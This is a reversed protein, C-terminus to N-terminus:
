AAAARASLGPISQAPAGVIQQAVSLAAMATNNAPTEDVPVAGSVAVAASAFVDGALAASGAITVSTSAGGALPGLTCALQSGSGAASVTCAPTSPADFRFPVDGGFTAALTFSPVEVTSSRNTVTFTWTASTGITVPNPAASATLALDARGVRLVTLSLQGSVAPPSGDTVTFAVTVPPGAGTGLQPVGSLLGATSLTLGAPLAGAAAFTISQPPTDADTVFQALNLSLPAGETATQPPIPAIVPQDDVATVTIRFPLPVPPGGDSITVVVDHAGVNAQTPTGSITAPPTFALWAPLTPAAFLVAGGDPDTGAMVYTYAVGETAATPPANTFFPADNAPTVTITVTAPASAATGDSATYTFTATGSFNPPPTYTFSGDSALALTGNTVATGLAATLATGADPDTDNALVGAAAAVTLPTDEAVTYADPAATPAGNVAAVTITVTAAASAATGDNAQYTFTVPGSFGAAPTFTFSGDANLALTGSAVNTGLVATLTDGDADTDNALVGTAAPVTLAAGQNTSYSDAVAVPPANVSSVAITVTAVNSSASGDSAQYTFSVNGSFGVAPTFVFSGNPSLLLIGSSVNVVLATTLPDGELDTDNALVGNMANVTLPTNENTSYSDNVAVPPDNGTSVNITVTANNGNATGDNARYTFTDPGNFNADPMYIFSGNANLALTGHAVDTVLQATLADGDADTDNALVGNALAVTLQTDEATAYTDNASVPADNIDNVTITVTGPDSQAGGRVARYTFSDPGAYGAAPTYNFSGDPQLALTGHAVPTDLVATLNGGPGPGSGEDNALVGQPRGVRLETGQATSYTDDHAVPLDAAAVTITFQQQVTNAGDSASLTVPRDGVDAPGPVGALTATRNGNDTLRLWPPLPAGATITITDTPDPDTVTIAYSYAQGQVASTVPTSSFSPPQQAQAPLGILFSLAAALLAARWATDHTTFHAAHRLM